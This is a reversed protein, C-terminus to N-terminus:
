GIKPPDPQPPPEAIKLPTAAILTDPCARALTDVAAGIHDPCRWVLAAYGTASHEATIIAVAEGPCDGGDPLAAGCPPLTDREDDTLELEAKPRGPERM